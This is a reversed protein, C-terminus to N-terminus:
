EQLDAYLQKNVVLAQSEKDRDTQRMTEKERKKETQRYFMRRM